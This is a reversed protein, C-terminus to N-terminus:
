IHIPKGPAAESAAMAAEKLAEAHTPHAHCTLAIDEASAGFEMAQVAQAIMTGALDSLIHVGLVRDTKADALIKVFGDTRRNARARSNAAFPFKGVHYAIGAAKLEEESRGVSAIEPHTYVVAPIVDHNVVGARGAINDAVAIGEDEAKHALMPGPTVDGIAWVDPVATSLNHAVPIFGRENTKLGIADLNLGDVNPRRGIALLVIDAELVREEGGDRPAIRARVGNEINEVGVLRHACLLHLGQRELIRAAALSIDRDMTPLITDAYEVVTVDAGLRAWVSGMELGIAGGGVVLLKKPVEPLSLAETSSIVREGDPVIGPPFAPVSGTAIVIHRATIERDAVQVRHPGVFAAHGQIHTVKNKRFLGAIGQTLEVIAKNKEAHMRALDLTPSAVSIGFKALDDGHAVEAYLESAHLLTKSPICGVNLCTGGLSERADVCAVKLGNQAGRIAAVYGGPGGGIVLLDFDFSESVM